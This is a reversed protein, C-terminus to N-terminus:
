LCACPHGHLEPAPSVPLRLTVVLNVYPQVARARAKDPATPARASITDGCGATCLRVHLAISCEGSAQGHQVMHLHCIAAAHRRRPHLAQLSRKEPAAFCRRLLHAPPAFTWCTPSERLRSARLSNIGTCFRALLRRTQGEKLFSNTMIQRQQGM